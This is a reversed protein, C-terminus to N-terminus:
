KKNSLCDPCIGKFYVTKDMIQFAPLDIKQMVNPDLSFNYITGCSACKFHGHTEIEIDYRTEHEDIQLPRVLGADQLVSLTNYVTTKSLSPIETILATYIQDVTPHDLHEALYALIKLRQVSLGIRQRKLESKLDEFSPKM